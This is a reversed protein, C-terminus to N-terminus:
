IKLLESLFSLEFKQLYLSKLKTSKKKHPKVIIIIIISFSYDVCWINSLLKSFCKDKQKSALFQVTIDDM